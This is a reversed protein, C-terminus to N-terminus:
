IFYNLELLQLLHPDRSKLNSAPRPKFEASGDSIFSLYMKCKICYEFICNWISSLCRTKSWLLDRVHNINQVCATAFYSELNFPATVVVYILFKRFQNRVKCLNQFLNELWDTGPRSDCFILILFRGFNDFVKGSRNNKFLEFYLFM